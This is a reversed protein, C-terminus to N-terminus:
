RKLMEFAEVIDTGHFLFFGFTQSREYDFQHNIRNEDDDIEEQNKMKEALPQEMQFRLMSDGVGDDREQENGTLGDNQVRDRRKQEAKQAAPPSLTHKKWNGVRLDARDIQGNDAKEYSNQAPKKTDASTENGTRGQAQHSHIPIVCNSSFQCVNDALRDYCRSLM